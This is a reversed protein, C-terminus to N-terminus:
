HKRIKGDTIAMFLPHVAELQLWFREDMISSRTALGLDFDDRISLRLLVTKARRLKTLMDRIGFWRTVAPLTLTVRQGPDNGKSKEELIWRDFESCYKGLKVKSGKIEKIISKLRMIFRQLSPIKTIDGALLNILHAAGSVSAISSNASIQNRASLYNSRQDSVIAVIKELGYTEELENVIELL